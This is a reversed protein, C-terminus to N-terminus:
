KLNRAKKQMENTGIHITKLLNSCHQIWSSIKNFSIKEQSPRWPVVAAVKSRMHHLPCKCVIFPLFMTHALPAHFDFAFTIEAATSFPVAMMGYDPWIPVIAMVALAGEGRTEERVIQAVLARGTV